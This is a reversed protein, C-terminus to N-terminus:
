QELLGLIVRGVEDTKVVEIFMVKSQIAWRSNKSYNKTNNITDTDILTWIKNLRGM